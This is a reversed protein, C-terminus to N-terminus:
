SRIRLAPPTNYGTVAMAIDFFSQFAWKPGFQEGSDLAFVFYSGCCM